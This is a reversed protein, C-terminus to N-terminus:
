IASVIKDAITKIETKITEVITKVTNATTKVTAEADHTVYTRRASYGTKSSYKLSYTMVTVKLEEKGSDDKESRAIAVKLCKSKKSGNKITLLHNKTSFRKSNLKKGDLKVYHVKEFNTGIDIKINTGPKAHKCKKDLKGDLATMIMRGIQEYGAKTPHTAVTIADFDESFMSIIDNLSMHQTTAPTDVNNIDIYIFGNNEACKKIVCNMSDTLLNFMSGLPLLVEDSFTVNQVPNMIGVLVIEANKADKKVRNILKKYSKVWTNYYNSYNKVLKTVLSAVDEINIDGGSMVGMLQPLEAEADCQLKYIVDSMGLEITILRAGNLLEVVDKGKASAGSTNGSRFSQENGYFDCFLDYRNVPDRNAYLHYDNLISADEGLLGLMGSVGFANYALPWFKNEGPIIEERGNFTSEILGLQKAIYCPYSSGVNVAYKYKNGEFVIDNGGSVDDIITDKKNDNITEHYDAAYGRAFSDGMYVYGTGGSFRAYKDPVSASEAAFGSVCAMSLIMSVTLLVSLVKSLSKM